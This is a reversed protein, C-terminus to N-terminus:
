CAKFYNLTISPSHHRCDAQVARSAWGSANTWENWFADLLMSTGFVLKRFCHGQLQRMTAQAPSIHHLLHSWPQHFADARLAVLV